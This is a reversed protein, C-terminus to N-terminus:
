GYAPLAHTCSARACLAVVHKLPLERRAVRRQHLECKRHHNEREREEEGCRQM